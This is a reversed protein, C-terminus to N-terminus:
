SIFVYFFVTGVVITVVGVICGWLAKKTEVSDETVLYVVLIGMPELVCGWLFSPIGLAPERTMFGMGGFERNSFNMGKLLTNEEQQLGSLTLGPNGAVFDELTQLQSKEQNVRDADYNFLESQNPFVDTLFPFFALIILFSRKM